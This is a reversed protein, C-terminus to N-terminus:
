GRVVNNNIPNNRINVSVGSQKRAIRDRQAKYKAEKCRLQKAQQLLRETEEQWVEERQRQWEKEEELKGQARKLEVETEKQARRAETEQQTLRAEADKKARRAQEKKRQTEDFKNEMKRVKEKLLKRLQKQSAMMEDLM